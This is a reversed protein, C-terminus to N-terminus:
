SYTHAACAEDGYIYKYVSVCVHSACMRRILPSNLCRVRSWGIVHLHFQRRPSCNILLLLFILPACQNKILDLARQIFLRQASIQSGRLGMDNKNQAWIEIRSQLGKNSINNIDDANM